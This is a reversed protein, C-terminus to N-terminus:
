QAFELLCDLLDAEFQAEGRSEYPPSFLVDSGLREVPQFYWSGDRAPEGFVDVKDTNDGRFVVFTM